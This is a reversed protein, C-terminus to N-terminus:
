ECYRKILDRLIALLNPIPEGKHIFVDVSHMVEPPQGTYLVIPVTPKIAKMHEALEAGTIQGGILHDAIVLCVPCERFMELAEAANSAQLVAFSSNGLIRKMLERQVEEDEVHLILPKATVPIHHAATM